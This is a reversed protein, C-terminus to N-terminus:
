LTQFQLGCVWNTSLCVLKMNALYSSEQPHLNWSEESPLSENQDLEAGTERRGNQQGLRTSPSSFDTLKSQQHALNLLLSDPPASHPWRTSDGLPALFSGTHNARSVCIGSWSVLIPFVVHDFLWPNDALNLIIRHSCDLVVKVLVTLLFVSRWTEKSLLM